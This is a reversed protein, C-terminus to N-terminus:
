DVPLELVRKIEIKLEPMINEAKNAMWELYSRDEAV